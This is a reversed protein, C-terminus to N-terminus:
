CFSEVFTFLEISDFLWALPLSYIHGMHYQLSPLSPGEEFIIVHSVTSLPGEWPAHYPINRDLDEVTAPAPLRSHVQGGGLRLLKEVEHKSLPSHHTFTGQLYMHCGDFLGPKKAAFNKQAKLIGSNGPCEKSGQVLYDEPDLLKGATLCAKVYTPQVIWKGQLIAQFYPFSRSCLGNEDSELVVICVEPTMSTWKGSLNKILQKLANKNDMSLKYGFFLPVLQGDQAKEPISHLPSKVSLAAKMVTTRAHEMPTKGQKNRAGIDAGRSVLLEVVPIHNNAVAEHLPTDNEPGGPVNLLAGNDILIKVVDVFGRLAAEHLPTWGANDQVNPPVGEELLTSVQKVDNTIAAKHLVTEGKANRRLPPSKPSFSSTILSAGGSSRTKNSQGKGLQTCKKKDPTLGRIANPSSHYNVGEQPSDQVSSQKKQAKVFVESQRRNKRGVEEPAIFFPSSAMKGHLAPGSLKTVKSVNDDAKKLRLQTRVSKRLLLQKDSAEDNGHVKTGCPHAEDDIVNSLETDITTGDSQGQSSAEATMEQLQKAIPLLKHYFEVGHLDGDEILISCEPCFAGNKRIHDIICASCFLDECPLELSEEALKRCICCQLGETINKLCELAKPSLPGFGSAQSSAGTRLKSVGAPGSEALNESADVANQYEISTRKKREGQM